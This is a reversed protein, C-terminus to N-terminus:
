SEASAREYEKYERWIKITSYLMWLTVLIFPITMWANNDGKVRSENTERPMYQVDFTAGPVLTQAHDMSMAVTDKRESGDRLPFTYTVEWRYTSRGRSQLVKKEVASVVTATSHRGNALYMFESYSFYGAVLFLIIGLLWLRLKMGEASYSGIYMPALIDREWAGCRLECM